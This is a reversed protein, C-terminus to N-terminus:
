PRLKKYLTTRSIGLIRAALSVNGECQDLVAKVHDAEAEALSVLRVSTVPGAAEGVGTGLEGGAAVAAM